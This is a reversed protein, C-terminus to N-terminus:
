LGWKQLSGENFSLYLAGQYAVISSTFPTPFEIERLMQGSLAKFACISRLKCAIWIINEGNSDLVSVGSGMLPFDSNNKPSDYKWMLNGDSVRVGAVYNRDSSSYSFVILNGDHSLTPTSQSRGELDLKWIIKDGNTSTALVEKSWSTFIIKDDAFIPTSKISGSFGLSWAMQGNESNFSFIKGNNAGFYVRHIRNLVLPSSHVQEGVWNSRWVIRGDKRDIKALYGNLFGGTEVTVYIYPEYKDLFPSSGIAEALTTVWVLQGSDKQICYLRGNYAGIYVHHDDLAATSHVGRKSNSFYFRWRLSGDHNFAYFWGSDSGLYIGSKDVAPSSKSASHVGVNVQDTEWIKKIKLSIREETSNARNDGRYSNVNSLSDNKIFKPYYIRAEPFRSEPSFLRIESFIKLPLLAPNIALSYFVVLAANIIFLFKIVIVILKKDM